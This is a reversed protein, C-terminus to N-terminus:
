VQADTDATLQVFRMGHCVDYLQQRQASNADARILKNLEAEWRPGIAALRVPSLAGLLRAAGLVVQLTGLLNVKEL